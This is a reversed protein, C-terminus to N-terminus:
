TLRCTYRVFSVVLEALSQREASSQGHVVRAWITSCLVFCRRWKEDVGNGVLRQVAFLDTNLTRRRSDVHCQECKSSVATSSHIHISLRGCCDISIFQGCPRCYCVRRMSYCRAFTGSLCFSPCRVTVYVRSCVVCGTDVILWQLRLACYQYGCISRNEVLVQNCHFFWFLWMWLNWNWNIESMSSSCWPLLDQLQVSLHGYFLLIACLQALM